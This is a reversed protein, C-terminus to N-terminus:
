EETKQLTWPSPFLVGLWNGTPEAYGSVRDTRVIINNLHVHMPITVCDEILKAQVQHYIDTRAAQDITANGQELLEDVEPNAYHWVNLGTPTFQSSHFYQHLEGPEYDISGFFLSQATGSLRYEQITAYDPVAEIKMEIGVAQLYQQILPAYGREFDRWAYNTFSFKTGDKERVGGGTDVWGAEDLLAKSKDVDFEYAPVDANYAWHGPGMVSRAAYAEDGIVTRVMAPRDLAYAIAQRVRADSFLPDEANMTFQQVYPTELIYPTAGEVAGFQDTSILDEERNDIDVEGAQFAALRAQMDIIPRLIVEDLIPTGEFYGDHRALTIHDGDVQEVFKFPGSGIPATNFAATDQNEGELLHKPAIQFVWPAAMHALFTANPAPLTMKVTHDDVAEVQVDEGNVQLTFKYLYNVEPQLATQATFVVDAATVPEGDHWTANDVLTFTYVLGDDSIDWSKALQPTPQLTPDFRLLNSFMFLDTQSILPNYVPFLDFPVSVILTGGTAEQGLMSLQNIRSAPAGSAGIAPVCVAATAGAAGKILTRRALGRAPKDLREM